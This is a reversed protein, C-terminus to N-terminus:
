LVLPKRHPEKGQPRQPQWSQAGLAKYLWHNKIHKRAKHGRPNGVRPVWLRIFGITKSTNGESARQGRSSVVGSVWVRIFGITKSTNEGGAPVQSQWGQVGLGKYFWNNKPTKGGGKPMQPQWGQVGLGKYFWNNELHKRRGSAGLIALGSWGSARTAAM